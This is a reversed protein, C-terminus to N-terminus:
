LIVIDDNRMEENEKKEENENKLYLGNQHKEVKFIEQDLVNMNEFDIVPREEL